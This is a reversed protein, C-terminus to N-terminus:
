NEKFIPVLNLVEEKNWKISKSNIVDCANIIQKSIFIDKKSLHIQIKKKSGKIILKGPRRLIKNILKEISLTLGSFYAQLIYASLNAFAIKYTSLLQNLVQCSHAIASM